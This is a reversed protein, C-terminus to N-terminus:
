RGAFGCIYTWETCGDRWGHPRTRGKHIAAPPVTKLRRIDATLGGVHGM